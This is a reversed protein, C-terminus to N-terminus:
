RPAVILVMGKVAVIEVMAGESLDPGTVSWLTDNIKIEGPAGCIAKHLPYVLGILNLAPDNLPDPQAPAKKRFRWFLAMLATVITVFAMCQEFGTFDDGANATIGATILMAIGVMLLAGQWMLVECILVIVGLVLWIYDDTISTVDM